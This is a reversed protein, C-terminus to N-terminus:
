SAFVTSRVGLRLKVQRALFINWVALSVATAVAAGEIGFPPILILNLLVNLVSALAVGQATTREFGAMNLLWGVAGMGANVLQGCCLIVLAAHGGEFEEGFVLRLIPAGFLILVGATPAAALMSIRATRTAMRQLGVADGAARLRAFTPAVVTNVAGLAFVVLAALQASVRYIGVEEDTALLGLMVIDAQSNIVQVGAIFSFPLLSSTWARMEYVPPAARAAAPIARLLLQVSMILTLGAALAHLAMAGSPSMGGVVAGAAILLLFLGPRVLTEALQGQITRHLGRLVGGQVNALGVLLPLLLGWAYTDVHATELRDSAALIALIAAAAVGAALLVAAQTARHIAGRMFGWAANLDYRAIERVLLTPLGVQAPVGLLTVVSLAFAYVGFGAPTLVRALVIITGLSLLAYGLKLAVSALSGRPIQSSLARLM